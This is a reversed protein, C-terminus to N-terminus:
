DDNVDGRLVVTVAVAVAVADVGLISFSLLLVSSAAARASRDHMALFVHDVIIGQGFRGVNGLGNIETCL